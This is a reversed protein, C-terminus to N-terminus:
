LIWPILKISNAKRIIAKGFESCEKRIITVYKTIINPIKSIVKARLANLELCFMFVFMNTLLSTAPAILRIPPNIKNSVVNFSSNLPIDIALIRMIIPPNEIM